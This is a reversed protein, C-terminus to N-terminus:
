FNIRLLLLSCNIFLIMSFDSLNGEQLSGSISKRVPINHEKPAGNEDNDSDILTIKAM